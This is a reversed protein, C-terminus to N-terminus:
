LLNAPTKFTAFPMKLSRIISPKIAALCMAIWSGTAWL